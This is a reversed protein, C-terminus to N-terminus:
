LILLIDTSAVYCSAQHSFSLCIKHLSLPTTCDLNSNYIMFLPLLWWSYFSQQFEELSAGKCWKELVCLHHELSTVLSYNPQAGFLTSTKYKVAVSFFIFWQVSIYLLQDKKRKLYSQCFSLAPFLISTLNYFTKDGAQPSQTYNPLFYPFVSIQATDNSPCHKRSLFRPLTALSFQFFLPWLYLPWSIAGKLLM